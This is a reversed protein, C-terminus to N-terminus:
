PLVVTLDDATFQWYHATRFELRTIGDFDAALYTPGLASLTMEEHYAPQDGKFATILLTEGEAELSSAGFYGGVFNFPKSSSIAAPHGSGNYALFEGSMVGNRYGEPDYFKRHTMVFNDWGLGGYGSPIKLVGESQLDDFTIKESAGVPDPSSWWAQAVQVPTTNVDLDRGPALKNHWAGQEVAVAFRHASDAHLRRTARDPGALVIDTTSPDPFTGLLRLEPALGVLHPAPDAILDAPSGPRSKFETTQVANGTTVLWHSPVRVTFEYTGEFMIAADSQTGSMTFNAFGAGNSVAWIPRGMGEADVIIGSMPQDGLDYLGNRNIDRFVFVSINLNGEWYSSWDTRPPYYDDEALAPVAALVALAALGFALPPFKGGGERPPSPKGEGRGAGNVAHAPKALVTADTRAM